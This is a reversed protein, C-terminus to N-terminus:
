QPRHSVAQLRRRLGSVGSGKEGSSNLSIALAQKPNTVTPGTKSGSHLKGKKFEKMTERIGPMAGGKKAHRIAAMAHGFHHAATDHDGCECAELAKKAHHTPDFM